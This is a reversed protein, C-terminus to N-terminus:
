LAGDAEWRHAINGDASTEKTYTVTSSAPIHPSSERILTYAPVLMEIILHRIPYSDLGAIRDFLDDPGTANMLMRLVSVRLLDGVELGPVNLRLIKRTEDHGANSMPTNDVTVCSNSEPAIVVLRGDPKVIEVYGVSVGEHGTIFPFSQVANECRGKETLIKVYDDLIMFSPSNTKFCAYVQRDIFVADAGPFRERTTEASAKLIAEPAPPEPPVLLRALAGNSALARGFWLAGALLPIFVVLICIITKSKM